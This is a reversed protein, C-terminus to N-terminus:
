NPLYYTDSKILAKGLKGLDGDPLYYADDKLLAKGLRGWDGDPLYYADKKLLAKGFDSLDSAGAVAIFLTTLILISQPLRFM